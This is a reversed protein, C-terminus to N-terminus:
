TTIILLAALATVADLENWPEPSEYAFQQMNIACDPMIHLLNCIAKIRLAKDKVFAAPVSHM